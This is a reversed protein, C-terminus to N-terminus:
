QITWGSPVKALQENTLKKVIDDKLTLTKSTDSAVLNAILMNVTADDLPCDAFDLSIGINTIKYINTLNKCGTFPLYASTCKSLNLCPKGTSEDSSYIKTLASCYSFMSSINVPMYDDFSYIYCTTMKNCGNFTMNFNKSAFRNFPSKTFQSGSLLFAANDIHLSKIPFANQQLSKIDAKLETNTTAQENKATTLDTQAQGAAMVADEVSPRLNNAISLATSATSQAQEASEKSAYNLPPIFSEDIQKINNITISDVILLSDSPNSEYRIGSYIGPPVTIGLIENILIDVYLIFISDGISAQDLKGTEENHIEYLDADEGDATLVVEEPEKGVNHVVITSGEFTDVDIPTDSIKYLKMDAFESDSYAPTDYDANPFTYTKTNKYFPRNKIYDPATEDNQDYDVQVGNYEPDSPIIVQDCELGPLITFTECKQSHWVQSTAGDVYSKKVCVIFTLKGSVETVSRSITWDFHIINSDDSDVTVNKCVYTDEYKDPRVFNISVIMESLDNGDWYRPCDFTVTEINHDYQVAVNKLEEPITVSRDSNIVIHPEETNLSAFLEAATAM